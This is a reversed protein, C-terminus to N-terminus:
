GMVREPLEDAGVGIERLGIEPVHLSILRKASLEIRAPLTLKPLFRVLESLRHARLAFRLFTKILREDDDPPHVVAFESDHLDGGSVRMEAAWRGMKEAVSIRRMPKAPTM